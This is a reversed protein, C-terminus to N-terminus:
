YRKVTNFQKIVMDNVIGKDKEKITYAKGQLSDASIQEQHRTRFVKALKRCLGDVNDEPFLGSEISSRLWIALQPVSFATNIKDAGEHM